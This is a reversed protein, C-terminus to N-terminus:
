QSGSKQSFKRYDPPNRNEAKVGFVQLLTPAGQHVLQNM